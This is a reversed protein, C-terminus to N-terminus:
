NDAVINHKNLFWTLRDNDVGAAKSLKLVIKSIEATDCTSLYISKDNM